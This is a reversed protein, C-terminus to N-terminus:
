HNGIKFEKTLHPMGLGMPRTFKNAKGLLLLSMHEYVTAQFSVGPNLALDRCIKDVEQLLIKMDEFWNQRPYLLSYETHKRIVEWSFLSLFVYFGSQNNYFNM